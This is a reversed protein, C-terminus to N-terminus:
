GILEGWIVINLACLRVLREDVELASGRGQVPKHEVLDVRERV